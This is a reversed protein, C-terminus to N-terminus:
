LVKYKGDIFVGLPLLGTSKRVVAVDVAAHGTALIWSPWMTDSVSPLIAECRGAVDVIYLRGDSTVLKVEQVLYVENNVWPNQRIDEVEQRHLESVGALMQPYTQLRDLIQKTKRVIGRQELVWPFFAVESEQITGAIFGNELPSFRTGFSLHLCSKGTSCGWLWTRLTVIDENTEKEQGLVLWEDKLATATKDTELVKSSQSWGILQRLTQQWLPPLNQQNKWANLLLNLKGIVSTADQYWVDVQSFDVISLARVWGALGPAKADVMRAAMDAFYSQPKNPLELLGVRMMDELWLTLESVGANVLTYRDALRKEKAADAKEVDEPTRETAPKPESKNRRKDVWTSVWEPEEVVTASPIAAFALLLGLGHKCPFQRSPCSCKYALDQIDM